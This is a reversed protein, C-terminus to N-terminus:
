DGLGETERIRYVFKRGKAEGGKLMRLGKGVGGLGGEVVAYPHAEFRGQALMRAVYRLLVYAFEPYARVAEKDVPQKPMGELYQGSHVTGVYVYKIEVDVPVGPDTYSNSGSFVSVEGGGGSKHGLMQALPIWSGDASVADLAYRAELGLGDLHREVSDKM